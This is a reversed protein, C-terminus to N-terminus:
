RRPSAGTAGAARGLYAVIERATEDSITDVRFRLMNGRMRAVVAPWQSPTHQTPSPLAHCRSCTRGFLEAAPTGAGPLSDATIARLSHAQLYDLIVRREDETPAAPHMGRMGRGRGMGRRLMMGGMSRMHHGREMHVLMRRLTSEWDAASHSAPSPIGHCQSCYRAVLQAGPSEADPLEGAAIGPPLFASDSVVSSGQSFGGRCALSLLGLCIGLVRPRCRQAPGRPSDMM